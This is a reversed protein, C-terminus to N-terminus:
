SISRTHEIAKPHEILQQVVVVGGESTVDFSIYREDTGSEACTVWAFSLESSSTDVADFAGCPVVRDSRAKRSARQSLGLIKEDNSKVAISMRPLYSDLNTRFTLKYDDCDLSYRSPMDTSSYLSELRPTDYAEVKIGPTDELSIYQYRSVSCGTSLLLLVSACTLTFSKRILV